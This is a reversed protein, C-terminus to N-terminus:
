MTFASSRVGVRMRETPLATEIRTQSAPCGPAREALCIAVASPRGM